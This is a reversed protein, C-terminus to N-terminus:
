LHTLFPPPCPLPLSSTNHPVLYTTTTTTTTTRPFHETRTINETDQTETRPITADQEQLQQHSPFNSSHHELKMMKMMM